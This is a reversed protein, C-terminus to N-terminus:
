MVSYLNPVRLSLETHLSLNIVRVSGNMRYSDGTFVDDSTHVSVIM